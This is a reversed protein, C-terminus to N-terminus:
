RCASPILTTIRPWSRLMVGNHYIWFRHHQLQQMEVVQALYTTVIVMPQYRSQTHATAFTTFEFQSPYNLMHAIIPVTAVEDAIHQIVIYPIFRYKNKMKLKQSRLHM